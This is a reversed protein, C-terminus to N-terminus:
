TTPSSTVLGGHCGPGVGGPRATVIDGATRARALLTSTRCLCHGQQCGLPPMCADSGAQTRQGSCRGPGSERSSNNPGSAAFVGFKPGFDSTHLEGLQIPGNTVCPACWSSRARVDSIIVCVSARCSGCFNIGCARRRPCRRHAQETERVDAAESAPMGSGLAM